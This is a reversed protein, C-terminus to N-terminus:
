VFPSVGSSVLDFTYTLVFSPSPLFPDSTLLRKDIAQQSQHKRANANSLRLMSISIYPWDFLDFWILIVKWHIKFERWLGMYAVSVEMRLSTDSGLSLKIGVRKWLKWIGFKFVLYQLTLFRSNSTSPLSRKPKRRLKSLPCALILVCSSNRAGKSNSWSGYWVHDNLNTLCM